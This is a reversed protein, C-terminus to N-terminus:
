MGGVDMGGGGEAGGAADHKGEKATTKADDDPEYEPPPADLQTLLKQSREKDRSGLTCLFFAIRKYPLAIKARLKADPYREADVAVELVQKTGKEDTSYSALLEDLPPLIVDSVINAASDYFGERTTTSTGVYALAATLAVAAAAFEATSLRFRRAAMLVIVSSAAVALVITDPSPM